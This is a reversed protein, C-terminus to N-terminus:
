KRKLKIPNFYPFVFGINATLSLPKYNPSIYNYDLVAEQRGSGSRSDTSIPNMLFYQVRAEAVLYIAGFRYKFGILGIASPVITNYSSTVAVDPGSVVGKGGTRTTVMTNSANLLFSVGPGLGVYPIFTTSKETLKLQFIPNLDVWTQKITVVQNAESSKTSDNTFITANSYGFTRVTYFVEPAFVLRRILSKKSTGFFEKEFVAGVQFGIKTAYKGNGPASNSVYYVNSLLPMTGNVGFKLGINFVPKTRFTRYLGMFEAPEVNSNPEFFHSTALLKQMSEDAKEPEELYIYSLTLLRYASVLETDSFSNINKTILDPIEHLRGQEYISQALRLTQAGSQQGFSVKFGLLCFLILCLFRKM